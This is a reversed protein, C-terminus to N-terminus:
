KAVPTPTRTHSLVNLIDVRAKIWLHCPIFLLDKIEQVKKCMTPSIYM